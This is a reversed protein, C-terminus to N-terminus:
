ITVAKNAKGLSELKGIWASFRPAKARMADIGIRQALISGYVIKNYGSILRKLRYSPANNPSDNILEPNPFNNLTNILEAENTFDSQPIESRFAEISNFLLGEFEHLQIYPIFRHDDPFLMGDELHKMRASKDVIVKGTEWNPFLHRDHIGYYDILTTVFASKDQALHNQIQRSLFSWALIGGASKKITPYHILVGKPNLHPQLVDKCFEQETQGECVIIVRQM